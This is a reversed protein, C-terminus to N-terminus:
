STQKVVCDKKFANFNVLLNLYFESCLTVASADGLLYFGTIITIVNLVLLLM